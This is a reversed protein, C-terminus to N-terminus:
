ISYMGNWLGEFFSRANIGLTKTDYGGEQVILTPINLTGIL